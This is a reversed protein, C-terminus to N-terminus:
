YDENSTDQHDKWHAATAEAMQHRYFATMEQVSLKDWSVSDVDFDHNFAKLKGKLFKELDEKNTWSPDWDRYTESLFYQTPLNIEPQEFEDAETPEAPVQPQDIVPAEAAAPAAVPESQGLKTTYWPESDFREVLGVSRALTVLDVVPDQEKDDPEAGTMFKLFSCVGTPDSAYLAECLRQTGDDSSDRKAGDAHLITDLRSAEDEPTWEIDPPTVPAPPQSPAPKKPKTKKKRKDSETDSEEDSDSSSEQDSSQGNSQTQQTTSSAGGNSDAGGVSGTSGTSDAGGTTDAGGISDSSASHTEPLGVVPIDGPDFDEPVVSPDTVVSKEGDYVITGDKDSSIGTISM